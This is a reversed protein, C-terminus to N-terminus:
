QGSEPKSHLQELEIGMEELAVMFENWCQEEARDKRFAEGHWDPTSDPYNDSIRNLMFGFSNEFADRLLTYESIKM